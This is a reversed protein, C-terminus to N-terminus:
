VMLVLDYITKQVAQVAEAGNNVVDMTHGLRNMMSKAVMVNIKNDEVLLIKPKPKAELNEPSNSSSSCESTRDTRTEGIQCVLQSASTVSTRDFNNSSRSMSQDHPDLHGNTVSHSQENQSINTDLHSSSIDMHGASSSNADETSSLEKYTINSTPSSNDELIRNFKDLANVGFSSPSLKQIRGSSHSSFMSGLMRPQFIFTGTYLDDDNEDLGGQHEMDSLDDPDDSCESISSIKYPLVFTFTSGDNEVSSVSLHGGM